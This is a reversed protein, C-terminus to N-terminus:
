TSRCLTYATLIGPSEKEFFSCEKATLGMVRASNRSRRLQSMDGGVIGPM